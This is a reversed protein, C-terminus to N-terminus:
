DGDIGAVKANTEALVREIDCALQDLAPIVFRQNFEGAKLTLRSIDPLPEFEALRPSLQLNLLLLAAGMGKILTRRRM